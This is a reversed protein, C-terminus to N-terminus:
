VLHYLVCFTNRTPKFDARSILMDNLCFWGGARKCIAYYHGGHLGGSHEIQACAEYVLDGGSGVFSMRAPFDVFTDLKRGFGGAFEYKKAMVFLIEPVMNLKSKRFKNGRVGCPCLCDEDVYGTQNMLFENLDRTKNGHQSELDAFEALQESSLSAEVVFMTNEEKVHSFWTNCARCYISNTRRHTFLQQIPAFKDLAQLFLSFAEGVCQQNFAFQANDPSERALEKLMARWSHPSLQALINERRSNFNEHILAGVM